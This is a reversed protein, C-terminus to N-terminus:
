IRKKNVNNKGGNKIFYIITKMLVNVILILLAVVASCEIMNFADFQNIMLSIPIIGLVLNKNNFKDEAVLKSIAVPFGAQAISILLSFTPMILMYVGIGETGIIRTIIIKTVMGLIKTIFGGIVLMFTIRFFNSKKM